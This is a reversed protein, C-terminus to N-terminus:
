RRWSSERGPEIGPGAKTTSLGVVVRCVAARFRPHGRVKPGGGDGKRVALLGLALRAPFARGLAM